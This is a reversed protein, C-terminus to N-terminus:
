VPRDTLGSRIGVNAAFSNEKVGHIAVGERGFSPWVAILATLLAFILLIVRGSKLIQKIKGM